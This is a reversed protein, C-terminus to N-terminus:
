GESQAGLNLIWGEYTQALALGAALATRVSAQNHAYCHWGIRHLGQAAAAEIFARALATGLRRQRYAPVVEIGVECAGAHNYESLCWGALTDGEVACVGFSHALFDDVSGRESCMEELLAEHNQWHTSEVLKQDVPLLAFGPPLRKPWASRVAQAEYYHRPAARPALHGLAKEVVEAWGPGGALSAYPKGRALLPPAIRGHVADVIAEAQAPAGAVFLRQQTWALAVSPERLRDAYVQGPVAGTLLAQLALHHPMPRFLAQVAKHHVPDLLALMARM